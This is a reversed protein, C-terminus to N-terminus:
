DLMLLMPCHKLKEFKLNPLVCFFPTIKCVILTLQIIHIFVYIAINEDKCFFSIAEVGFYVVVFISVLYCTM